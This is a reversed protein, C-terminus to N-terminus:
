ERLSNFKVLFESWTYRKSPIPHIANEILEQFGPSPHNLKIKLVMGCSYIDIKGVDVNQPNRFLESYEESVLFTNIHDLLESESFVESGVLFKFENPVKSLPFIRKGGQNLAFNIEPPWVYYIKNTYYQKTYFKDFIESCPMLFDWDILFLSPVALPTGTMSEAVLINESKVDLHVYGNVYIKAINVCLIFFSDLLPVLDEDFLSKGIYPFIYQINYKSKEWVEKKKNKSTKHSCGVYPATFECKPDIIKRITEINEQEKKSINDTHTIKGVYNEAPKHIFTNSDEIPYPRYVDGYSGSGIKM